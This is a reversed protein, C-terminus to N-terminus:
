AIRLQLELEVNGPLSIVEGKVNDDFELLVALTETKIYDGYSNVAADIIPHHHLRIEIKDTVNYNTDKRMNQIRNVLERAMGEAELEETITTDLAVTLKGDTAVQWGPIDESSITFDEITLDYSVGDIELEYKGASEIERITDQDFSSILMNAQKMHKGM